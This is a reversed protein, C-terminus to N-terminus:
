IRNFTRITHCNACVIDCKKIEEELREFSCSLSTAQSIIFKKDRLHDFQMVYYPYKINCDKCPTDKVKIIYDRMRKRSAKKNARKQVLIHERNRAYYARNYANSNKM